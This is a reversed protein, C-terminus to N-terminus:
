FRVYFYEVYWGVIQGQQVDLYKVVYGVYVLKVGQMVLVYSVKDFICFVMVYVVYEDFLIVCGVGMSLVDDMWLFNFYQMCYVVYCGQWWLLVVMGNDVGDVCGVFLVIVDCLGGVLFMDIVVLICIDLGEIQVVFVYLYFQLDYLNVEVLVLCDGVCVECGDVWGQFMLMIVEVNGSVVCMVIGVNFQVLEYGLMVQCKILVIFDKWFNGSGFMVDGNVNLDEILKFLVYCVILCVVVWCQGVQVQDLGCVYVIQGIIVCLCNDELSVVYFLLDIEDVVSLQKLFLEVQELLIVNILVEQCLGFQQGVVCDLYVLSLVDGLYILYLNSVQLNVQWIELWFWLKKLFCVFIDWLMDGKCVVYIDLYGGNMEVVIVYIVVILLVVVVVMCICEFMFIIGLEGVFVWVIIWFGFCLVFMLLLIVGYVM